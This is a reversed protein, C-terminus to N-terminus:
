NDFLRALNKNIAELLVVRPNSKNRNKKSRLEKGFLYEELSNVKIGYNSALVNMRNVYDAYAEEEFNDKISIDLNSSNRKIKISLGMETYNASETSLKSLQNKSYFQTLKDIENEEVLLEVHILKTWKDYILPMVEMNNALGQFFLIKTFYSSGIGPIKYDSNFLQYAGKINSNELEKKSAILANEINIKGHNLACYFPTRTKDGKYGKQPREANIKGWMMTFAFAEYYKSEKYLNIIYERDLIEPINHNEIIKRFDRIEKM